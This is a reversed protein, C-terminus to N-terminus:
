FNQIRFLAEALVRFPFAKTEAWDIYSLVQKQILANLASYRGTLIMTGIVILLVSSIRRILPLHSRFKSGHRLFFDFFLAAFLFPLALGFSYVTLYFVATLTKGSQGAM